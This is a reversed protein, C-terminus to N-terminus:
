QLHHIDEYKKMQYTVFWMKVSRLPLYHKWVHRHNQGCDAEQIGPWQEDKNAVQDNRTVVRDTRM